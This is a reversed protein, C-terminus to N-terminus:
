SPRFIIVGAPDGHNKESLVASMKIRQQAASGAPFHPSTHPTEGWNGEVLALLSLASQRTSRRLQELLRFGFQDFMEGQAYPLLAYQPIRDEDNAPAHELVARSATAQEEPTLHASLMLFPLLTYRQDDGPRKESSALDNFWVDIIRRALPAPVHPSGALIAMVTWRDGVTDDKAVLAEASAIIRGREQQDLHPSMLLLSRTVDDRSPRDETPDLATRIVMRAELPNLHPTLAALIWTAKRDEGSLREAQSLGELLEAKAM